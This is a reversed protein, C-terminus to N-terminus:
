AHKICYSFYLVLYFCKQREQSHPGAICQDAPSLSTRAHGAIRFFKEAFKKECLRGVRGEKKESLRFVFHRWYIARGGKRCRFTKNGGEKELMRCKRM